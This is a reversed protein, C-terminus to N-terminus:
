TTTPKNESPKKFLRNDSAGSSFGIYNSPIVPTQFRICISSSSLPYGRLTIAQNINWKNYNSPLIAVKGLPPGVINMLVDNPVGMSKKLEKEHTKITIWQPKYEFDIKQNVINYVKLFPIGEAAFNGNKPTGGNQVKLCCDEAKEEAWEEMEPYKERWQETLIGTVAATLVSQRFRKLIGPVKDLREKVADIRPMIADLKTVIRKQENLPPLLITTNNIREKSLEVQNTSGTYLSEIINQIHHSQIWRFCYNSIVFKSTRIITVHSDVVKPPKTMNETVFCARGITGTGTSNWLIDNPQIYRESDWIEIQDPHIFKLYEEILGYWRIAKQNIVPLTSKKIYKPSKGRQIYISIHEFDTNVWGKPLGGSM